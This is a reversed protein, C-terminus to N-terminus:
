FPNANGAYYMTNNASGLVFYDVVNPARAVAAIGGNGSFRPEDHWTFTTPVNIGRKLKGDTGRVLVEIITPYLAVATVDGSIQGASTIVQWPDNEGGNIGDRMYLQNDNFRAFCTINQQQIVCAPATALNGGRRVWDKWSGDYSKRYMANDTGRVFCNTNANGYLVCSPASTINGGLGARSSWLCQLGEGQLSCYFGYEILDKNVGSAYCYLHGNSWVICSPATLIRPGGGSVADTASVWKKSGSTCFSLGNSSDRIFVETQSGFVVASPASLTFGGLDVMKPDVPDFFPRTTVFPAIAAGVVVAALIWFQM